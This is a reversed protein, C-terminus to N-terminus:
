HNLCRRTWQLTIQNVGRSLLVERVCRRVPVTAHRYNIIIISEAFFCQM